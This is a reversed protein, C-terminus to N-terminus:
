EHLNGEQPKDNLGCRALAVDLIKRVLATHGVGSFEALMPFDSYEPALGPLPNIEIFYLEGEPSLRFDIRAFDRCRLAKFIKAATHEMHRRLEASINPPCEYNIYNRFNKKVDYSYISHEKTKFIIEMPAFVHAQEGNGLIGVTFERGPIYEEVLMDQKYISINKKLIQRLEGVNQVISFNSIGKSSGEENPKVIVPYHFNFGVLPTAPGVIKYKPTKVGYTGLLRKTLAKDMAICMASEDSGTFPINLFNLIAPVQAERGRGRMGEAINFVIDPKNQVLKLPLTEDAEFLEVECGTQELANKIAVITTLEDFEAEADPPFTAINKKINYTVGVRIKAPSDPNNNEM